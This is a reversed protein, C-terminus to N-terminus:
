VWTGTKICSSKHPIKKNATTTRSNKTTTTTAATATAAAAATRNSWCLGFAKRICIYYWFYIECHDKTQIWGVFRFALYECKWQTNTPAYNRTKIERQARAKTVLIHRCMFQQHQLLAFIKHTMITFISALFNVLVSKHEELPVCFLGSVEETLSSVFPFIILLSGIDHINYSRGCIFIKKSISSSHFTIHCM